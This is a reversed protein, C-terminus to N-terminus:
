PIFNTSPLHWWSVAEVSPQPIKTTVPVSSSTQPSSCSSLALLMGAVCALTLMKAM